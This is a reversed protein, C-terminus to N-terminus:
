RERECRQSLCTAMEYMTQQMGKEMQAHCATIKAEIEDREDLLASLENLMKKDSASPGDSRRQTNIHNLLSSILDHHTRKSM